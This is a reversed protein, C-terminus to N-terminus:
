KGKKKLGFLLLLFGLAGGGIMLMKNQKAKAQQQMMQMQRQQQMRREMAEQLEKQRKKEKKAAKKARKKAKRGKFFKFAGKGIKWAAGIIAGIPM